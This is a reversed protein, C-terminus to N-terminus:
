KLAALSCATRANESISHWDKAEILGRNAIWSGGIAIVAKEKLYDHIHMQEIGGLPIFQIDKHAYPAFVRKLYRLGGIMEAPFFKFIQYGLEIGLGIESPTAVGPVFPLSEAVAVELVKPSLNPAVAIQAGADRVQKVQACEIVTGAMIQMEPFRQHIASIQKLAIPTRLTVEIWRIGGNLLAEAIFPTAELSPSAVTAIIPNDSLSDRLSNPLSPSM